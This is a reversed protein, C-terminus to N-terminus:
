VEEYIDRQNPNIPTDLRADELDQLQKQVNLVESSIKTQPPQRMRNQGGNQSAIVAASEHLKLNLQDQSYINSANKAGLEAELKNELIEFLQENLFDIQQYKAPIRTYVLNTSATTNQM